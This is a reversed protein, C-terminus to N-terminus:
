TNMISITFRQRSSIEHISYTINTLARRIYTHTHTYARMHAHLTRQPLFLVFIVVESDNAVDSRSSMRSIIIIFFVAVDLVYSQIAKLKM